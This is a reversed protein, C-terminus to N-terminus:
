NEQLEINGYHHQQYITYPLALTDFVASFIMDLFSLPIARVGEIKSLGEDHVRVPKANLKCVDYAM